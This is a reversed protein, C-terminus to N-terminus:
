AERMKQLNKMREFSGVSVPLSSAYSVNQVAKLAEPKAEWEGRKGCSLVFHAKYSTNRRELM